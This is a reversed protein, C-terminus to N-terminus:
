DDEFLNSFYVIDVCKLLPGVKPSDASTLLLTPQTSVYKNRIQKFYQKMKGTSQTKAFCPKSNLRDKARVVHLLM